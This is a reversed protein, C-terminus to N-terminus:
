LLSIDCVIMRNTEYDPPGLRRAILKGNSILRKGFLNRRIITNKMALTRGTALSLSSCQMTTREMLSSNM